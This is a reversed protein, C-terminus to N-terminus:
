QGVRTRKESLSIPTKRLIQLLAKQERHTLNAKAEVTSRSLDYLEREMINQFDEPIPVRSSIPYYYPNATKFEVRIDSEIDQLRGERELDKLDILTLQEKFTLSSFENVVPVIATADANCISDADSLFYWKVTLTRM